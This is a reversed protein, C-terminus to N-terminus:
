ALTFRYPLLRGCPHCCRTALYVGNPALGFLSANAHGANSGPLNSSGALLPQGLPITAMQQKKAVPVSGPKDVPEGRGNKAPIHM